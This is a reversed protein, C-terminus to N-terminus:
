AAIAHLPLPIPSPLIRPVDPRGRSPVLSLLLTAFLRLLGAAGVFAAVAGLGRVLAEPAPGELALDLARLVAYLAFLRQPVRLERALEDRQSAGQTLSLREGVDSGKRLSRRLAELCLYLAASLVVTTFNRYEVAASERWPSPRRLQACTAVRM